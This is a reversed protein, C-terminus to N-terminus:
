IVQDSTDKFFPVKLVVYLGAKQYYSSITSFM